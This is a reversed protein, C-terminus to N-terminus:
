SFHQAGFGVATRLAPYFSTLEAVTDTCYLGRETANTDVDNVGVPPAENASGMLAAFCFLVIIAFVKQMRVLM